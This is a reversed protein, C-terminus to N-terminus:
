MLGPATFSILVRRELYTRHKVLERIEVGRSSVRQKKLNHQFRVRTLHNELYFFFIAWTNNVVVILVLGAALLILSGGRDYAEQHQVAVPLRFFNTLKRTEGADEFREIIITKQPTM